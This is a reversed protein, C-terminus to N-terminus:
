SQVVKRWAKNGSHHPDKEEVTILDASMWRYVIQKVKGDINLQIKKEEIQNRSFCEPLAKFLKSYPISNKEDEEIKFRTLHQKLMLNAIWKSFSVVSKRRQPIEGWLFWALMGARFGVVGARRCFIDRTRDETKVALAQQTVCWKEMKNYSFRLMFEKKLSSGKSMVYNAADRILEGTEFWSAWLILSKDEACEEITM